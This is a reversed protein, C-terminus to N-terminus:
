GATGRRARQPPEGVQQLEAELELIIVHILSAAVPDTVERELLRYRAIETELKRFQRETM